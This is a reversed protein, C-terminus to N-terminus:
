LRRILGKIFQEYILLASKYFDKYYLEREEKHLCSAINYYIHKRLLKFDSEGLEKGNKDILADRAAKEPIDGYLFKILEIVDIELYPHELSNFLNFYNVPKEKVRKDIFPKFEDFFYMKM